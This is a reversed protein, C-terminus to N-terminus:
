ESQLQNWISHIPIPNSQLALMNQTKDFYRKLEMVPIQGPALARGLCGYTWPIGLLPMTIRTRQGLTGMGFAALVNSPSSQAWEELIQVEQSNQPMLALKFANAGTAILIQHRTQLQELSGSSHFDHHSALIKTPSDPFHARLQLVTAVALPVDGEADIWEVQLELGKQWLEQRDRAKADPWNGGDKVLRVTWIIPKNPFRKRLLAVWEDWSWPIPFLDVRVELMDAAELSPSQLEWDTSEQILAIIQPKM